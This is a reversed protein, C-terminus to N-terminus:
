GPPSRAIAESRRVGEKTRALLEPAIRSSSGPRTKKMCTLISKYLGARANFINAACDVAHGSGCADCTIITM